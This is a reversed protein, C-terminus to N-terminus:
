MTAFYDGLFYKSMLSSFVEYYPFRASVVKVLHDCNIGGTMHCIMHRKTQGVSFFM